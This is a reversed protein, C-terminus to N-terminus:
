HITGNLPRLRKILNDLMEEALLSIIRINENFVEATSIGDAGKGEIQKDLAIGAISSLLIELIKDHVMEAAMCNMKGVIRLFVKSSSFIEKVEVSDRIEDLLLKVVEDDSILEPTSVINAFKAYYNSKSFDYIAKNYRERATIFGMSLKELETGSEEIEFSLMKYSEFKM